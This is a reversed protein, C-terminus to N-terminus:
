KKWGLISDNHANIFIEQVVEGDKVFGVCRGVIKNQKAQDPIFMTESRIAQYVEHDQPVQLNVERDNHRIKIHKIKHKSLMVSKFGGQYSVKKLESFDSWSHNQEHAQSDDDFTAHFFSKEHLGREKLTRNEKKLNDSIKRM